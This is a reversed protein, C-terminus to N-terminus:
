QYLPLPSSPEIIAGIDFSPTSTFVFWLSGITLFVCFFKLSYKKQIKAQPTQLIFMESFKRFQNKTIIDFSKFTM